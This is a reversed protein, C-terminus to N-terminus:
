LYPWKGSISAIIPDLLDVPVDDGLHRKIHASTVQGKDEGGELYHFILGV